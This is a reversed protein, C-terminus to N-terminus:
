ASAERALCEASPKSTPLTAAFDSKAHLRWVDLLDAFVAEATPWRGAGDGLLLHSQLLSDEILVANGVGNAQLLVHDKPLETPQVSASIRGDAHRYAKAVLRLNPGVEASTLAAIGQSPIREPPLQVGWARHILLSLKRAADWGYIDASPDSEAYGLEQAQQLAQHFSHGDAMQQLIFNSTGNLVGQLQQVGDVAAIRGVGELAPVIGAVAASCRLIPTRSNLYPALANLQNAVLEKDATIVPIGLALAQLLTESLHASCGAVEIIVDPQASLDLENKLISCPPNLDRPKHPNAVVVQVLEFRDAHKGLLSYVGHGVTGLGILAVKLPASTPASNELETGVQGVLTTVTSSCQGLEFNLQQRQAYQVAKPQLVAGGVATAEEFGISSFRRPPPGDAAPDWEYLGAVDKLLRCTPSQPNGHKLAQAIVLATLDSGGRGLLSLRDDAHKGVFGPVILVSRLQLKQLLPQLDLQVPNADLLPGDTQLGLNHASLANAAIGAKALALKLLAVAEAEGTALLEAIAEENQQKAIVRAQKLLRDTTDGIASTVAIVKKGVRLHRYIEHVAVHLHAASPLVSSGFKLVQIRDLSM